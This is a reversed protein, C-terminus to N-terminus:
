DWEDRIARQYAVADGFASPLTGFHRSIPKRNPDAAKAEAVQLAEEITRPSNEATSSDLASRESSALNMDQLRKQKLAAILGLAEHVYATPLTQIEKILLETDSM